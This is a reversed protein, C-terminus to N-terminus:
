LELRESQLSRFTASLGQEQRMARFAEARPDSRTLTGARMRADKALYFRGGHDIAIADLRDMLALTGDRMALDLALTWGQM